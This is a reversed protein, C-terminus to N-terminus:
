QLVKMLNFRFPIAVTCKVPIGRQQGPAFQFQYAADLAATVLAEPANKAAVWARLIRGSEDINVNVVVTGEEDRSRAGPPYAPEFTRIARPATDFDYFVPPAEDEFGAGGASSAGGQVGTAGRITAATGVAPIASAAAETTVRSEALSAGPRLSGTSPTTAPAPPLGPNGPAGADAAQVGWGGSFAVLRLPSSAKQAPRPEYPPAVAFVIGHLVIAVVVANRVRAHYRSRLDYAPHRRTM